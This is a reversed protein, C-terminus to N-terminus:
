DGFLHYQNENYSEKNENIWWWFMEEGDGWRNVSTKGTAKRHLYLEQFAKIFLGAYKPYRQVEILRHKGAMPCFLCGIRKWGEDYLSCYPLNNKKIFKWADQETWDVIPNLITKGAQRRNQFCHRFIPTHKRNSSEARRVGTIVTRGEGGNEKYEACCWRRHRQPFGKVILRKLFPKGPMDFVVDPHRDRIFRVLEPPDITTVNYHADYKIGAMDALAKICISDKGGSFALYYGEKPEFDKIRKIALKVKDITKFLEIEKLM